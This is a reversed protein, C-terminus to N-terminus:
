CEVKEAVKLCNASFGVQLCMRSAQLASLLKAGMSACNVSFVLTRSFTVRRFEKWVPVSNMSRGKGVVVM